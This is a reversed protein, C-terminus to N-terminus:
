RLFRQHQPSGNQLWHSEQRAKWNVGTEDVNYADDRSYGKEEVHQLFTEKFKNTSNKDGSLSEGEIQLKRIGHRSKFNKLWGTSTKFNASGGLKENLNWPKKACCLARYRTGKAGKRYFGCTSPVIFFLM